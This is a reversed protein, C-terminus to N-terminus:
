SSQWELGLLRGVAEISGLRHFLLKQGSFTELRSLYALEGVPGNVPIPNQESFGFPGVGSPNRDWDAGSKIMEKMAPHVFELQYDDDDLLKHIRAFVRELAKKEKNRGFLSSLIGM